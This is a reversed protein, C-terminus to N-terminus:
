RSRWLQIRLALPVVTCFLDINLIPVIRLGPSNRLVVGLIVDAVMIVGFSWLLSAVVLARIFEDTERKLYRSIAVVIAVLPLTPLLAFLSVLLIPPNHRALDIWTVEIAAVLAVCGGCVQITRRQLPSLQKNFLLLSAM